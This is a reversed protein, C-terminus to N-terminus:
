SKVYQCFYAQDGAAACGQTTPHISPTIPEKVAADYQDKTVKGDDFMRKLVYDRRFKTAEYGDADSNDPKGDKTWSGAPRDIRFRNPNQVIGALTAAQNLTLNAA